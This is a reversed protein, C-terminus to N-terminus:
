TGLCWYGMLSFFSIKDKSPPHLTRLNQGVVATTLANKPVKPCAQLNTRFCKLKIPNPGVSKRLTLNADFDVTEIQHLGLLLM